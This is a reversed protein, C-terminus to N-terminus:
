VDFKVDERHLYIYIFIATPAIAALSQVLEM